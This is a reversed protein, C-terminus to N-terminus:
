TQEVVQYPAAEVEQMAPVVQSGFIRISKEHFWVAGVVM